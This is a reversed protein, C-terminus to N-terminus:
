CAQKTRWRIIKTCTFMEQHWGTNILLIAHFCFFLIPMADGVHVHAYIHLKTHLVYFYIFRSMFVNSTTYSTTLCRWPVKLHGFLMVIYLSPETYQQLLLSRKHGVCKSTVRICDKQHVQHSTLPCVMSTRPLVFLLVNTFISHLYFMTLGNWLCYKFKM